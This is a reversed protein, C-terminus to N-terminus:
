VMKKVKSYFDGTAIHHLVLIVVIAVLTLYSGPHVPEGIVYRNILIVSMVSCVILMCQLIIVNQTKGWYYITPFSVMNSALSAACSIALLMWFPREKLMRGVYNSYANLVEAILLLSLGFVLM